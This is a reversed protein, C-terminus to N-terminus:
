GRRVAIAEIEVIWEPVALSSIVVFTSAPFRGLPGFVKERARNIGPRHALSTTFVTLKGILDLGSGAAELVNRLNEYVLLAQAEADGLGVMADSPDKAVQGSVFVLDGLIAAHSYGTTPHVTPPNLLEANM